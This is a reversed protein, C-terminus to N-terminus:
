HKSSRHYRVYWSREEQREQDTTGGARRSPGKTGLPEANRRKNSTIGSFFGSFGFNLFCLSCEGRRMSARRAGSVKSQDVVMVNTYHFTETCPHTRCPLTSETSPTPAPKGHVGVVSPCIVQINNDESHVGYMCPYRQALIAVPVEKELALRLM